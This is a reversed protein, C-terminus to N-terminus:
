RKPHKIRYEVIRRIIQERSMTRSIDPIQEKKVTELLREKSYREM